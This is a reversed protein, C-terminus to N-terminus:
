QKQLFENEELFKFVAQQYQKHHTENDFSHGAGEIVELYVPVEENKLADRIRESHEIDVLRDQDGHVLLIPPDDESVAFIPSVSKALEPEFDLAPFRDSPGVIETLDVPPFIAMAAAIRNSAREIPDRANTNGSDSDLALMLSLHGGASYGWAVFKNDDVAYEEAHVRIHRVARRVDAVADPVKFQPSSGHYVNFVTINRDLYVQFMEQKQEAPQWPSRWGFSAMFILATGNPEAPKFVDYILAMGAKHGYIVDDLIEVDNSEQSHVMWGLTVLLLTAAFRKVSLYKM